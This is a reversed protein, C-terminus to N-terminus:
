TGKNMRYVDERQWMMNAIEVPFRKETEKRKNSNEINNSMSYESKHNIELVLEGGASM